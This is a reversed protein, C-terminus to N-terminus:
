IQGEIVPLDPDGEYWTLYVSFNAAVTDNNTVQLYYLQNDNLNREVGEIGFSGLARGGLGESGYTFNPAGFETGAVTFTANPFLEVTPPQPNIDSLNFIDNQNTTETITGGKFVRATIKAGSFNIKRAKVIAKKSTTRFAIIRGNGAAVNTFDFSAEFQLGNKVNAETYSQIVWAKLGLMIKYIFLLPRNYSAM